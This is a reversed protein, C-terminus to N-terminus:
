LKLAPGAVSGRSTNSSTLASSKSKLPIPEDIMSILWRSLVNLSNAILASTETLFNSEIGSDYSTIKICPPAVKCNESIGIFKECKPSVAFKASIPEQDEFAILSADFTQSKFIQVEDTSFLKVLM